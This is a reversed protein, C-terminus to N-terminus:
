SYKQKPFILDTMRLSAFFGKGARVVLPKLLLKWM